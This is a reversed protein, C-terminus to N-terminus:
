ATMMSSQDLRSLAEPRATMELKTARTLHLMRQGLVLTQHLCHFHRLQALMSPLALLQLLRMMGLLLRAIALREFLRSLRVQTLKSIRTTSSTHSSTFLTTQRPRRPSCLRIWLPTLMSLTPEERTLRPTSLSGLLPLPQTLLSKTCKLPM